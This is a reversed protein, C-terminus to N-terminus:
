PCRSPGRSHCLPFSEEFQFFFFEGAPRSSTTTSASRATSNRYSDATSPARCRSTPRTVSATPIRNSGRAPRYHHLIAASRRCVSVGDVVALEIGTPELTSGFHFEKSQPRGNRIGDRWLVWGTVMRNRSGLSVDCLFTKCFQLLTRKM